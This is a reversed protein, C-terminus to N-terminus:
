ILYSILSSKTPELDVYSKPLARMRQDCIVHLQIYVTATRQTHFILESLAFGNTAHLVGQRWPQKEGAHTHDHCSEFVQNDFTLSFYCLRIDGVVHTLNPITDLEPVVFCLLCQSWRPYSSRIRISQAILCLFSHDAIRPGAPVQCNQPRNTHLCNSSIDWCRPTKCCPRNKHKGEWSRQFYTRHYAICHALNYYWRRKFQTLRECM